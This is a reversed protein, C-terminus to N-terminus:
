FARKWGDKVMAGGILAYICWFQCSPASEPPIFTLLEHGPGRGIM